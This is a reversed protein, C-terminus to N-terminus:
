KNQQGLKSAGEKDITYQKEMRKKPDIPITCFCFTNQPLPRQVYITYIASEWGQMASKQLPYALKELLKKNSVKSCDKHLLLKRYRM